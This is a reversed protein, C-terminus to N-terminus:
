QNSAHLVSCFMKRECGRRYVINNTVNTHKSLYHLREPEVKCYKLKRLRNYQLSLYLIGPIQRVHIHSPKM